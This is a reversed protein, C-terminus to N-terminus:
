IMLEQKFQRERWDHNFASIITAFKIKEVEATVKALKLKQFNLKLSDQLGTGISVNRALPMRSNGQEM